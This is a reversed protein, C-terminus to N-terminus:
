SDWGDFVIVDDDSCASILVLLGFPWTLLGAEYSMYVFYQLARTVGFDGTIAAVAALDRTDDSHEGLLLSAADTLVGKALIHRPEPNFSNNWEVADWAAKALRRLEDVPDAEPLAALRDELEATTFPAEDPKMFAMGEMFGMFHSLGASHQPRNRAYDDVLSDWRFGMASLRSRAASVTTRWSAAEGEEPDRPLLDAEDFLLMPTLAASKRWSQVCLDNVFLYTDWGM